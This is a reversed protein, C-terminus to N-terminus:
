QYEWVNDTQAQDLDLQVLLGRHDSAGATPDLLRYRTIAERLPAFM